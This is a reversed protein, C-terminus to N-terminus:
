IRQIEELYWDWVALFQDLKEHTNLLNMRFSPRRTIGDDPIRVGSIAMLRAALERRKTEDNFPPQLSMMKFQVEIGGGTWVGFSYYTSGPTDIMPFFSGVTAGEGWWIRLGRKESWQLIAHAVAVVLNGHSAQLLEFFSAEDWKRRSRSGGTSKKQRAEATLGIVTPVLTQLGQGAYQRVEVALVEAPNMQKNLFEVVRRLEPPIVDAVFVMRINGTALNQKVKEWFGDFEQINEPQLFEALVNDPTRGHQECDGEFRSKIRDVPWFAVANAAYDLMQGVVERRIRTDSSRKVEVLTPIGDQDLFLHDLSWRGAGDEVDPVGYERAILLWRRPNEIDIQDGALLDPYDALLRQLLEESNYPAETLGTLSGNQDILFIRGTMM